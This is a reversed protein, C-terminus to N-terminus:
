TRSPHFAEADGLELVVVCGLMEQQRRVTEKLDGVLDKSTALEAQSALLDTKLQGIERRGAREKTATSELAEESALLKLRLERITASSKDVESALERRRAHAAVLQASMRSQESAFIGAAQNAAEEVERVRSTFADITSDKAKM